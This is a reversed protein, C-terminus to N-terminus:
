GLRDNQEVEWITKPRRVFYTEAYRDLAEGRYILGYCTKEGFANKYEVIKVVRPDEGGYWGNGAIIKDVTERDNITAM